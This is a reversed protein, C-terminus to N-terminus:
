DSGRDSTSTRLRGSEYAKVDSLRYRVARGIKIYPLHLHGSVRANRLTKSSVQWRAALDSDTLLQDSVNM